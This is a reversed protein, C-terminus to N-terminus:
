KVGRYIQCSVVILDLGINAQSESCFVNQKCRMVFYNRSRGTVVLDHCSFQRSGRKETLIDAWYFFEFISLHCHYLVQTEIVIQEHLHIDNLKLHSTQCLEVFYSSGIESWVHRWDSFSNSLFIHRMIVGVNPHSVPTPYIPTLDQIRTLLM